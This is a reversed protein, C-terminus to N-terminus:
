GGPSAMPQQQTLCHITGLGWVLDRCHIGVVIRGPLARRIVDIAESDHPDDFTPVLVSRNAIYFNAYSAPLRRGAFIVPRPAPLTLVELPGGSRPRTGELIERNERLPAFDPDSADEPAVVLVRRPGVFRAIDDVHGHTDDGVIGRGLWVVEDVGLHERFVEEYDTRGLGPNRAPNDGLLCEETALLLGDGSVDFAGGELVIWRGALEARWLPLGLRRAIARPVRRDRRWNDYRAWANFKWQILGIAARPDSGHETRRVFSPGSDRTWSRDTPCRHFRVQSLDVSSRLLVQRARRATAADPVLVEVRESDVLARVIEAYTWPIASFKGPWDGVEHPWAIWTAAHRDWEAPMRYGLSRPGGRGPATTM